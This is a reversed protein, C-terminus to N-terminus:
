AREEMADISAQLMKKGGLTHATVISPGLGAIAESAGKITNPIDMLKADLMVKYGFSKAIDVVDLGVSYLMELGLKVTTVKGGIASLLKTLMSKKNVDIVVILRDEPKLIRTKM